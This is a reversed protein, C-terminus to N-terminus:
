KQGRYYEAKADFSYSINGNSGAVAFSIGFSIVTILTLILMCIGMMKKSMIM